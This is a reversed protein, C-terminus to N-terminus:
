VNTFGTLKLYHNELKHMEHRKEDNDDDHGAIHLAGHVALRCMEQALSVRYDKAQVTATEYSIYIEADLPKEDLVFTIVDTPYDHALYQKNLAHIFTDDCVVLNISGGVNELKQNAINKIADIMKKVPLFKKDSQNCYTVEISM